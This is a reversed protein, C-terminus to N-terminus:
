GRLLLMQCVRLAMEKM